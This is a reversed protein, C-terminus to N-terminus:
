TFAADADGDQFTPTAADQLAAEFRKSIIYRRLAPRRHFFPFRSDSLTECIGRHFVLLTHGNARILRQVIERAVEQLADTEACCYPIKMMGGRISLMVFACLTGNQDRLCFQQQEFSWDV